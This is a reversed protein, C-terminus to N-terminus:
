RSRYVASSARAPTSVGYRLRRYLKRGPLANDHGGGIKAHFDLVNDRRDIQLRRLAYRDTEALNPGPECSFAFRYGAERAFARERETMVGGPYSLAIAERGIYSELVRKSETLEFRVDDDGLAVLNRHTVSHTEFSLTGAGDLKSIETWSLLPPEGRPYWSLPATGDILGTAVFVTARFGHAELIPLAEDAVDQYGDDFSLGLLQESSAAGGQLRTAAEVVDVVEYGLSALLAMHERFRLPSVALEDRDNSVRHYYLLRLGPPKASARSRVWWLHSRVRTAAGKLPYLPGPGLTLAEGTSRM